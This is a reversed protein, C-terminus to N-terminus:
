QNERLEIALDQFRKTLAHVYNDLLGDAKSKADQASLQLHSIQSVLATVESCAASPSLENLDIIPVAYGVTSLTDKFKPSYSIAVAPLGSSLAAIAAHMRSTFLLDLQAIYGKAIGPTQFRHPLILDPFERSLDIALDYDEDVNGCSKLGVVHPILHVQTGPIKTLKPIIQNIFEQYGEIYYRDTPLARYLLGSVNFGINFTNSSLTTSPIPRLKFAVDAIISVPKTRRKQAWKASTRDRCYVQDARSTVLRAALGGIRTFPGLTQPALILPRRSTLAAIKTFLQRFLGGTGYISAFSDGGAIDIVIDHKALERHLRVFATPVWTARTPVTMQKIAVPVSLPDLRNLSAEGTVLMTLELQINAQSAAQHILEINSWTLAGVGLNNIAGSHWFLAVRLASETDTVMNLSTM